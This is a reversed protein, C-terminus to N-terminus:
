YIPPTNWRQVTVVLHGRGELADGADRARAVIALNGVNNGSFERKPNPGAGAPRYRGNAELRGAFDVDATRKAEEDFPEARWEAAVPGLSVLEGGPLRTAGIAEFQATVPAIRGGGVRAIGYAPRVELADIQRYVVLRGSAAGASVVRNGPAADAAVTVDAELVNAERRAVVARAGDGFSPAAAGALGTGVVVVHAGTGVKLAQPLVALVEAPADARLATFDGGEESHEPDFWRGTLRRGDESAAYIERTAHGGLTGRGRWEFGTYVIAHSEGALAGGGVETLAYQARYEGAADRRIEATGYFDRGGPVHGVVVWRGALEPKARAQWDRWAPTALPYLAALEAPLKTSAIEWWPRDRGSAQYELSPFQGMHFHMHKLWEDADRRQLAVRALSHCRGCMVGLEPGLDLDQVNPRRELAFRGPAAEAPALGQTDALHRVLADHVEDPLALHHVQRMRFLTMVWGEPTKRIDSIREFQGPARERHCGSCWTRVLAAGSETAAAAPAAPALVLLALLLPVSRIPM